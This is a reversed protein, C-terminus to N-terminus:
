KGFKWVDKLVKESTEGKYGGIVWLYNDYVLSITSSRQSWATNGDNKEPTNLSSWSTGNYTFYRRQPSGDKDDGGLIWIKGDFVISSHNKTTNDLNSHNNWSVGDSSNWVDNLNGSTGNDGGIIWIKSDYVVSAHGYRASWGAASSEQTWSAGDSSSYVDNLYSNGSQGGLIWIKNKFVVGAHSHRPSPFDGTQTQNDWKRGTSSSWVDGYSTNGKIGGIVWMKGKFRLSVHKYRKNWVPDVPDGPDMTLNDWKGVSSSSSDPSSMVDQFYTTNDYGGFLWMKKNFVLGSHGSRGTLEGVPSVQSWSCGSSCRTATTFSSTKEADMTMDYYDKISSSVKISYSTGSPIKNNFTNPTLIFIKSAIDGGDSSLPLCTSFSDSSVQVNKTCQGDSDVTVVSPPIAKSFTITITSNNPVGTAANDPSISAVYPTSRDEGETDDKGKACSFLLFASLLMSLSCQFRGSEKLGFM